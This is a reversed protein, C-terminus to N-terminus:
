CCQIYPLCVWIWVLYRNWYSYLGDKEPHFHELTILKGRPLPHHWIPSETNTKATPLSSPHEATATGLNATTLSIVNKWAKVKDGDSVVHEHPCQIIIPDAPSLPQNTDVSHTM